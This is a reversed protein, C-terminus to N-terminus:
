PISDPIANVNLSYRVRVFRGWQQPSFLFCDVRRPQEWLDFYSRLLLGVRDVVWM